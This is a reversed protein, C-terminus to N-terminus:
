EIAGAAQLLETVKKSGTRQIRLLVTKGDSDRANVDAGAQILIKVIEPHHYGAAYMLATDKFRPNTGNVDAQRSLLFNVMEIKGEISACMLPTTGYLDHGNIDAGEALLKEVADIEGNRAAKCFREGVMRPDEAPKGPMATKVPMPAKLTVILGAQATGSSLTIKINTHLVTTVRGEGVVKGANLIYLKMGNKIAATNEAYVTVTKGAVSFVKGQWAALSGTFAACMLVGICVKKRM